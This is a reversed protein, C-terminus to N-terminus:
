VSEFKGSCHGFNPVERGREESCGEPSQNTPSNGELRTFRKSKIETCLFMSRGASSTAIPSEASGRRRQPVFDGIFIILFVFFFLIGATTTNKNSLNLCLEHFSILYSGPLCCLGFEMKNKRRCNQSSHKLLLPPLAPPSSRGSFPSQTLSNM